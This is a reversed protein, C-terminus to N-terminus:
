TAETGKARLEEQERRFVAEDADPDENGLNVFYAPEPVNERLWADNTWREKPVNRRIWRRQPVTMGGFVGHQDNNVLAWLLCSRRLPCPTPSFEGNCIPLAEEADQFWADDRVLGDSDRSINFKRCRAGEEGGGSEDTWDPPTTRSQIVM